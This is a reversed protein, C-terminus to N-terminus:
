HSAKTMERFSPSSKMLQEYSGQAVVHGEDLQLISDCNQVTTLRHAILIITLDPNLRDIAEMVSQETANDLASTAEDFVLVSAQKYFARAIGIRQRQGGSIRIGREGVLAEYGNPQSEIFEDIQAQHAAEKVRAMDIDDRPVGFAINEAMSADSLYIAQPVHAITQQWSRISAGSVPKGDVLFNGESPSLLGLLLDMTTSKGSGTKGVVGIRAGKPISINLENLIWPSDETYHFKVNRIEIVDNFTMPEPATAHYDSPLPQDLLAVADVLSAQNGIISSWSSYIQQLAPLVRQAGLALAGLVPVAKAIGGSQLSLFYALIAILAIGIAEMAFRPSSSIFQNNGQAQRLPFDSRRYIDCYVTQTNNLLVDRIGGLGENLAKLVQTHEHAIRRSNNRLRQRALRSVLGYCVGFITSSIIAVVPDIVILTGTISVLLVISSIFMLVTFLMNSAASVKGTIGAIVESSNRAIHVQYPQYLTRRYVEISLDAASIYALRTSTWMFLMRVAGALVAISVFLITLPLVLQDPSKIDFIPALSAVIPHEFVINPTILVGLFPLVAGLSIVEAFASLLMLMVLLAYQFQRRRSLHAWLQLLMSILGPPASPSTLHTEM